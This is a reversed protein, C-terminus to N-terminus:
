SFMAIGIALRLLQGIVGSSKGSSSASAPSSTAASGSGTSAGSGSSFVGTLSAPNLGAKKMDAAARSYATNSMYLEFDRAKQAESANFIRSKEAEAANFMNNATTGTINNRIRGFLDTPGAAIREGEVPALGGSLYEPTPM